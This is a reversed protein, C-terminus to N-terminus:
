ILPTGSLRHKLFPAPQLFVNTPSSDQHISDANKIFRSWSSSCSKAASAISTRARSVEGTEEVITLAQEIRM